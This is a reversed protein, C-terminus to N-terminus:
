KGRATKRGRGAKPTEAGRNPSLDHTDIQEMWSVADVYSLFHQLYGPSVERMLSLSRHVLSSSNIPGANDPVQEQSARLQRRTRLRAWTGQFYEVAPLEPYTDAPLVAGQRLVDQEAARKQSTIYRALEALPGPVSPRAGDAVAAERAQGAPAATKDIKM